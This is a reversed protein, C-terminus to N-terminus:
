PAADEARDDEGRLHHHEHHHVDPEPRGEGAEAEILEHVEAPLPHNGQGEAVDEDGADDDQRPLLAQEVPDAGAKQALQAGAALANLTAKRLAGDPQQEAVILVIPM